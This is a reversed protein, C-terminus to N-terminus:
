KRGELFKDVDKMRYLFVSSNWPSDQMHWDAQSEWYTTRPLSMRGIKTSEMEDRSGSSDNKRMVFEEGHCTLYCSSRVHDGGVNSLRALYIDLDVAELGEIKDVIRDLEYDLADKELIPGLNLVLDQSIKNRLSPNHPNEEFTSWIELRDKKKVGLKSAAWDKAEIGSIRGREQVAYQDLRQYDQPSAAWIGKSLPSTTFLIQEQRDQEKM